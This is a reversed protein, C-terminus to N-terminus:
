GLTVVDGTEHIINGGGVEDGCNTSAGFAGVKPSYKTSFHNGALRFNDGVGEPCYVTYAGGALLNDEITINRDGSAYTIVASTGLTGDADDASYITNHRVTVNLGCCVYATGDWHWALQVGDAHGDNSNDLDHIFSDVVLADQNIDLGNDCDHIHVRRAVFHAEGIANGSDQCDIEVDEFLVRVAPGDRDPIEVAAYQAACTIVSNRIVVNDANVTLCGIRKGDIVTGDTTISSPGAYATLTTGAPVGTTSADPFDGAPPPTATPTSTPTSTPSATVTVTETVTATTTVTPVPHLNALLAETRAQQCAAFDVEKQATVNSSPKVCKPVAVEAMLPNGYAVLQAGGLVVLLVAVVSLVASRAHTM